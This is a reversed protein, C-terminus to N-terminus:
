RGDEGEASGALFFRTWRLPEPRDYDRYGQNDRATSRAGDRKRQDPFGWGCAAGGGTEAGSAEVVKGKVWCVAVPAVVM